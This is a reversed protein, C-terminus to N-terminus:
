INLLKKTQFIKYELCARLLQKLQYENNPFERTGCKSCWAKYLGTNTKKFKSLFTQKPKNTTGFDNKKWRAMRRNIDFTKQMEFKMLNGNENSETWYEVFNYLMVNDFDNKKQLSKCKKM